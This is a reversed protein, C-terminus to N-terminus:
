MGRRFEGHFDGYTHVISGGVGTVSTQGANFTEKGKGRGAAPVIERRRNRHISHVMCYWIGVGMARSDLRAKTREFYGRRHFDLRGM